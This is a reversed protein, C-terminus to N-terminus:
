IKDNNNYLLDFVPQEEEVAKESKKTVEFRVRKFFAMGNEKLSIIHGSPNYRTCRSCNKDSCKYSVLYEERDKKDDKKYYVDEILLPAAGDKWEEIKYNKHWTVIKGIMDQLQKPSLM